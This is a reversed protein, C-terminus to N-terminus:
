GMRRFSILDSQVLAYVAAFVIAAIGTTLLLRYGIRPNAPAGAREAHEDNEAPRIGLPLVCFLVLWWIVVYVLLATVWSM